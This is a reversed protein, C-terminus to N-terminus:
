RWERRRRSRFSRSFHGYRHAARIAALGGIEVDIFAPTAALRVDLITRDAALGPLDFDLAVPVDVPVGRQSRCVLLNLDKTTTLVVGRM